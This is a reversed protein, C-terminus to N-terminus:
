DTSSYISGLATIIGKGFAYDHTTLAGLVILGGMWIVGITTIMTVMSAEQQTVMNSLITSFFLM